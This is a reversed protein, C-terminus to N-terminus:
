TRCALAGLEWMGKDDGTLWFRLTHQLHTTEDPTISDNWAVTGARAAFLILVGCLALRIRWPTRRSVNRAPDNRLKPRNSGPVAFLTPQSIM